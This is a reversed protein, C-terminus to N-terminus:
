GGRSSEDALPVARGLTRRPAWWNVRGALRMIAPVLVARVVTADLLVALALGFGVMKLNTIASTGFSVFVIAMVAAAATIIPATQQLGSAVSATNDGLADYREKIRSLMFVEYDMSLGFAVAFILPPNLVNIGGTVTFSGVLSQLHGDQFVYVLVGLVALLSLVNLALAKLPAVVSGTMALLAFFTTGVILALALPLRALMKDKTDALRLPIGAMRVGFPAPVARLSRAVREGANAYPERDTVVTLLAGGHSFFAPRAATPRIAAVGGDHYTASYSDVAVVGRVQSLRRAYGDLAGGPRAGDALVYMTGAERQSFQARIQDAVARPPSSAPLTRDDSFNFSLHRLPSALVLLLLIAVTAMPLPRRMAFRAFRAWFGTDRAAAARRRSLSLRDIHTGVKSLLAPMLVLAGLAALGTVAVGAYAFSRLYYQPFVLLSALAIAVTAASYAVARGATRLSGAIADDVSQGAALEDRYRAVIFLSYDIALGLGLATSLNIAFISVPAVTTLLRLVLMTGLIALAGIALPLVAAVLGRFVFFLALLTLPLAISEASVLDHKAQQQGEALLPGLGTVGATVPGHRGGYRKILPKSRASAQDENGAIQAIVLASRGDHSRLRPAVAPASTWYSDVRLVWREHALRRALAAGARAASPDGVSRPASVLLVFNPTTLHFQREIAHGARVSASGPDDFGANSLRNAADGGVAAAILAFAVAAVFVARRRRIAFRGLDALRETRTPGVRLL